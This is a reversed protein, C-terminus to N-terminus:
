VSVCECVSVCVCECVSVDSTCWDIFLNIPHQLVILFNFLNEWPEEREVHTGRQRKVPDANQVMGLLDLFKTFANMVPRRMDSLSEPKNRLVYRTPVLIGDRLVHVHVCM